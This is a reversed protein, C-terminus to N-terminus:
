TSSNEFSQTPILDRIFPFPPFDNFLRSTEELSDQVKERFLNLTAQVIESSESM